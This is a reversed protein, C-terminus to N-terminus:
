IERCSCVDMNTVEYWFDEDHDRKFDQKFQEFIRSREDESKNEFVAVDVGIRAAESRSIWEASAHDCNSVRVFFEDRPVQRHTIVEHPPLAVIKFEEHVPVDLFLTGLVRLMGDCYM